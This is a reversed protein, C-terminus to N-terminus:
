AAVEIAGIAKQRELLLSLIADGDDENWGETFSPSSALYEAKERAEDPTLAIAMILDLRSAREAGIAVEFAKDAKPIGCRERLADRQLLADTLALKARSESLTLFAELQALADEGLAMVWKDSLYRLKRAHHEEIGKRIEDEPMAGFEYYGCSSGDPRVDIPVRREEGSERLKQRTADVAESAAELAEYALRHREIISAMTRPRANLM